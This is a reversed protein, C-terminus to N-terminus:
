STIRVRRDRGRYMSWVPEDGDDDGGGGGSDDDEDESDDGDDESRDHDGEDEVDDGDDHDSDDGLGHDESDDDGDSSSDGPWRGGVVQQEYISYLQVTSRNLGGMPEDLVSWVNPVTNEMDYWINDSSVLYSRVLYVQQTVVDRMIKVLEDMAQERDLGMYRRCTAQWVPHPQGDNGTHGDRKSNDDCTAEEKVKEDHEARDHWSLIGELLALIEVFLVVGGAGYTDNLGKRGAVRIADLVFRAFGYADTSTTHNSTDYGGTAAATAFRIEPALYHHYLGGPTTLHVSPVDSPECLVAQYREAIPLEDLLSDVTRRLKFVSARPHM